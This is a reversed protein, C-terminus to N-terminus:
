AAPKTKRPRGRGNPAPRLAAEIIPGAADLVRAAIARACEECGEVEGVIAEAGAAIAREIDEPSIM